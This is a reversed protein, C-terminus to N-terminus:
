EGVSHNWPMRLIALYIYIHIRATNERLDASKPPNDRSETLLIPLKWSGAAAEKVMKGEMVDLCSLSSSIFMLAAFRRPSPVFFAPLSESMLCRGDQSEVIFPKKRKMIDKNAKFSNQVGFCRDAGRDPKNQRKSGHLHQTSTRAACVARMITRCVLRLGPEKISRPKRQTLSYISWCCPSFFFVEQWMKIATTLHPIANEVSTM